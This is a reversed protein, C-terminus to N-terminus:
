QAPQAPAAQPAGMGFETEITVDLRDGVGMNTGPAPLGSGLGFDSRKFSTKGSFGLRAGDYANPPYGGNFKAQIVIPKTVCHLTLDGAVDATAPGTRTVKTSKFTIQPCRAADLWDKGTLTAHFGPPPAPLTLSKTEITVTLASAEPRAPDLQLDGAIKSFSATYGSFGLHSLKFVVTSHTPDLRYLGAPQNPDPTTSAVPEGAAPASTATQTPQTGRDASAAPEAPKQCASLAILAAAALLPQRM